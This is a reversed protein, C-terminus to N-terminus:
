AGPVAPDQANVYAATVTTPIRGKEGVDFGNQKAWARVASTSPPVPGPAGKARTRRASQAPAAAAKRTAAKRAPRVTGAPKKSVPPGAAERLAADAAAIQADLGAMEADLQARQAILGDRHRRAAFTEADEALTGRLDEADRLINAVLHLAHQGGIREAEGLLATIPCPGVAVAGPDAGGDAPQPSEVEVVPVAAQAVAIGGNNAAHAVRLRLAQATRVGGLRAQSFGTKRMVEEDGAGSELLALAGLEADDLKKLTDAM